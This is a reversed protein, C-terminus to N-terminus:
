AKSPPSEEFGCDQGYYPKRNKCSAKRGASGQVILLESETDRIIVDQERQIIQIISRVKPSSNRSLVEALIDDNIQISCDFFYKLEKNIIKYQRKLKMEGFIEGFPAKFFAKGPEFCYYMGSIPARWDYIKIEENNPAAVNGKGIYIKECVGEGDEIFDIRGFYPCDVMKIYKEISKKTSEYDFARSQVQQLHQNMETLKDFDDTFHISDEWMEKNASIVEKKRGSLKEKGTIILNQILALAESLYAKEEVMDQNLEEM